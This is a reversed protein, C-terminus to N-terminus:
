INSLYKGNQVDKCLVEEGKREEEMGDNTKFYKANM